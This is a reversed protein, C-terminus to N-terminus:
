ASLTAVWKQGSPIFRASKGNTVSFHDGTSLANITDGAQAYVYCVAAGGNYIAQEASIQAFPLLVGAGSACTSLVSVSGSLVLATAKTTGAATLGTALTSGIKDALGGPLGRAMLVVADAM